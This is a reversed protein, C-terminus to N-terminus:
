RQPSQRRVNLPNVRVGIARRRLFSTQASCALASIVPSLKTLAASRQPTASVVANRQRWRNREAGASSLGFRSLPITSASSVKM